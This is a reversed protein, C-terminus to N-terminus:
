KGQRQKDLSLPPIPFICSSEPFAICAYLQGIKIMSSFSCCLPFYLLFLAYGLMLSGKLRFVFLILRILISGFSFSRLFTALSHSLLSHLNIQACVASRLLTSLFISLILSDTSVQLYNVIFKEGGLLGTM